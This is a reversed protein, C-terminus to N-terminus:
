KNLVKKKILVIGIALIVGAFSAIALIQMAIDFTTTLGTPPTLTIVEAASSDPEEGAIEYISVTEDINDEPDDWTASEEDLQYTVLNGAISRIDRRGVTNEVKIIEAVNDIESADEESSYYRSVELTISATAADYDENASYPVTAKVLNYNYDSDDISLILNNKTETIYEQVEDSLLTYSTEGNNENLTIVYNGDSDYSLRNITNEGSVYSDALTVAKYSGNDTEELVPSGNSDLVIVAVPAILKNTLLYDITTTSWAQNESINDTDIFEVDPDVYDMIQHITSEVLITDDSYTGETGLYYISGFYLGYQYKTGDVAIRGSSETYYPSTLYELAENYSDYSDESNIESWVTKLIENCTDAEGVNFVTLQYTVNITAGQLITGEAMIYRYGQTSGSRNLSAIQDSNTSTWKSLTVSSKITDDDGLEYEIDYVADLIIEGDSTTLTIEKIQKDLTLETQSREELGFDINEIVYTYDNGISVSGESITGTYVTYGNYESTEYDLDYVNEIELKLKATEAYMYYGDAEVINNEAKAEEYDGFLEAYEEESDLFEDALALVSTNDYILIESYSSIVLRRAESDRADSVRDTNLAENELDHWENDTYGDDDSDNDYGAQYSTSKYDQGSYVVEYDENGTEIYKDGYVFRVKYNGAPIGVFSYQGDEDTETTSDFGTLDQISTTGLYMTDTPWIFDYEKYVTEGDDTTGYPISITEVLETTMGAITTDGEDSNYLGNGVTQSYEITDTEADEWVLGNVERDEDVLEITLIPASDTDDEYYSTENLYEINVNDPASDKDVRGTVTDTGQYYSSFNTIEVVNHKEGLIISDSIGSIEEKSVKYTTTITATGGSAIKIGDLATTRSETYTVGDSGDITGSISWNTEGTKTTGNRDVVSYSSADALDMVENVDEGQLTEVYTTSQSSSEILTFSSDYYDAIENIEVDYTESENHVTITYTLYVELELAGSVSSLNKSDVYFAELAEWLESDSEYVSARYYYDSSYLGLTYEIEADAVAIQKYLLEEKQEDTLNDLDISSNYKYKIVKGNVSVTVETLDKEISVDTYERQVLGLNIHKTYEYTATFNYTTTSTGSSLDINKDWSELQIQSDFPYELGGTSTSATMLLDDYITGDTDYTQLTSIKRTNDSNLLSISDTSTYNLTVGGSTTGVTNGNVDMAEDGMIEAFKENFASRESSDDYAMSDLLWNDRNSTSANRYSSSDGDSTTLYTTPEYTQGDYSFTVDYAVMYTGAEIESQYTTEDETLAPVSVGEFSWDGNSDTYTYNTIAEGSDSYVGSLTTIVNGSTDVIVRTITVMVGSIGSENEGILGDSESDALKEDTSNTDDWVTGGLDMTLKIFVIDDLVNNFTATETGGSSLTGYSGDSYDLYYGDSTSTEDISYSPAEDMWTFEGSTWSNEGEGEVNITVQITMTEDVYSKGGYSFTGTVNVDFTFIGKIDDESVKNLVETKKVISLYGSQGGNNTATVKIIEEDELSGESNNVSSSVGTPVNIESVTYTPADEDSTWYFYGSRYTTGSTVETTYTFTTGNAYSITVEFDFSIGDVQTGDVYYSKDIQIRGRKYTVIKENVATVHHITEDVLTGRGNDTISVLDVGDPINIEEITYTPATEGTWIITDSTWSEGPILSVEISLAEGDSTYATENYTFDGEVTVTFDFEYEEINSTTVEKSLEIWAEKPASVDNTAIVSVEGGVTGKIFSTYVTSSENSWSEIEAYDPINVETVKYTPATVTDEDWTIESSEWTGAGVIKIGDITKTGSYDNGEYTFTGTIEVTFEFTKEDDSLTDFYDTDGKVIKTIKITNKTATENIAKIIVTDDEILSDTIYTRSSVTKDNNSISVFEYDDSINVEEVKYTPAEDEWYFTDSVWADGNAVVSITETYPNEDTYSTGNYTFDGTVTLEFEFEVDEDEDTELIKYIEINGTKSEIEENTITIYNTNEELESSLIENSEVTVQDGTLEETSVHTYGDTEAEEVTYTPASDGTWIIEDSLWEWNNSEELSENIVLTESSYVTDDYIFDGTITVEIDFIEGSQPEEGSVLEKNVNIYSSSKKTNDFIATATSDASITGSSDTTALLEYESTSSEEEEIEYSPGDTGYWTFGSLTTTWDNDVSLTVTTEYPSDTTYTTGDYTFEGTVTINFTFEEDIQKIESSGLTSFTKDIKLNGTNEVVINKFRVTVTGGSDFYGETKTNSEPTYEDEDYYVETVRYAPVSEGTKWYITSSTASGFGNTTTVAITEFETWGEGNRNIEILFYFTDDIVVLSNEENVTMKEVKITGSYQIDSEWTVEKTDTWMYGFSCVALDQTYIETCLDKREVFSLYEIIPEGDEKTGTQIPHTHNEDVDYEGCYKCYTHEHDENVWGDIDNYKDSYLACITCYYEYTDYIGYRGGANTYTYEFDLESVETMGTQYKIVIYFEAGPLPYGNEDIGSSSVSEFHYDDGYTLTVESGNQIVKLTSESIYSFDSDYYYDLEYPGVFWSNADEGESDASQSFSATPDSDTEVYEFTIESLDYGNVTNGDIEFETYYESDSGLEDSSIGGLAMCIYKEFKYALDLLDSSDEVVTSSMNEYQEDNTAVDDASTFTSGGGSGTSWWAVQGIDSYSGSNYTEMNAMLYADIPTLYEYEETLNLYLRVSKMATGHQCCLVWWNTSLYGYGTDMTGSSPLDFWESDPNVNYSGDILQDTTVEETAKVENPTIIAVLAIIFVFLILLRKVTKNM